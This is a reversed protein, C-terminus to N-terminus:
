CHGGFIEGVCGMGIHTVAAGVLRLCWRCHPRRWWVVRTSSRRIREGRLISVGVVGQCLAIYCASCLSDDFGKVELRHARCAKERRFAGNDGSLLM